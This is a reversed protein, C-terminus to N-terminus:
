VLGHRSNIWAVVDSATQKHQMSTFQARQVVWMSFLAFLRGAMKGQRPIQQHGVPEREYTFGLLQPFSGIIATSLSDIWDQQKQIIEANNSDAENRTQLTARYEIVSILSERLVIQSAAYFNWIFAQRKRLEGLGYSNYNEYWGFTTTASFNLSFQFQFSPHGM